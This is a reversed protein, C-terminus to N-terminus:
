LPPRVFCLASRCMQSTLVATGVTKACANGNGNDNGNGSGKNGNGAYSECVDSM